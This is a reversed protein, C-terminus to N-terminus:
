EAARIGLDAAIRPAAVHRCLTRRGRTLTLASRALLTPVWPRPAFSTATAAM